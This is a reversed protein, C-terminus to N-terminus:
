AQGAAVGPKKRAPRRTGAAAAQKPGAKAHKAAAAPKAAAKRARGPAQGASATLQSITRNLEEIQRGLTRFDDQTPVGLSHLARGVRDEFVKELKEWSGAAQKGIVEGPGMGSGALGSLRDGAAHEMQKQLGAGEAVLRSFLAERQGAAFAGLGAQWIQHASKCVADVLSTDEASATENLKRVM